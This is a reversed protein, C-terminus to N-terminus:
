FGTAEARTLLGADYELLADSIGHDINVEVDRLDSTYHDNTNHRYFDKRAPHLIDNVWGFEPLPTTPHQEIHADAEDLQPLANTLLRRMERLFGGAEAYPIERRGYDWPIMGHGGRIANRIIDLVADYHGSNKRSEAM